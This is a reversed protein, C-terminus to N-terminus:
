LKLEGDVHEDKEIASRLVYHLIIIIIAYGHYQSVKTLIYFEPHLFQSQSM